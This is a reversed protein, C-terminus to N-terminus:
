GEDGCKYLVWIDLVIDSNYKKLWQNLKFAANSSVMVPQCGMNYIKENDIEQGYAASFYTNADPHAIMKKFESPDTIIIEINKNKSHLYYTHVNRLGPTEYPTRDFFVVKVNKGDNFTENLKKTFYISQSIPTTLMIYLLVVNLIVSTWVIFKFLLSYSNKWIKAPLKNTYSRIGYGLIVPLIGVVPFMFRDEKHPIIFHLFLFAIVSLSYADGFKKFFGRFIYYLFILSLLPATCMIALLLVYYIFSNTGTASARGDIINVYFYTYPTFAFQGYFYSDITTNLIVGLMFGGGIALITSFTAKEYFLIWVGFGLLAFGMQFRFYFSLSFIFGVVLARFITLSNSKFRQYLLIGSFYVMGGMIESSFLTNVYPLFWSFNAIGLIIYLTSKSDDKFQRIIIYNYLVFGTSSVIIRLILDSTYAYDLHLFQMLKYFGLFLYVQITPRVQNPFEWALLEEPTIGMKYTAFEVISFHQDPHFYGVVNLATIIQLAFGAFLIIRTTKDLPESHLSKM